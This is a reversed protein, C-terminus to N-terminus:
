RQDSGGYTISNITVEFFVQPYTKTVLNVKTLKLKIPLKIFLSKEKFRAILVAINLLKLMTNAMGKDIRM